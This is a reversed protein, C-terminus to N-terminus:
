LFLDDMTLIAVFTSSHVGKTLGYTTILTPWLAQKAETEKRFAEIRNRLKGEEEKDLTYEAESYKIEFINIINDARELIMDIQAKPTTKRSRWSYCKTAINDLHMVQKIQSIHNMCLREFSLGLWTNVEPTGIHNSWYGTEAEAKPVFTLYFISYFDTLQYIASNRKIEKERVVYKRIIDCNVLDELKKSLSGSSEKGLVKGLENRTLGARAKSLATVIATYSDPSKFLTGYLRRYERRMEEDESFFLRDINMPFSKERHLLSLYYPIGGLAMYAQMVSLRDWLFGRSELYLETERLTFPRLHIEHTIRDHLGGKDDVIHRIMWSTASGCVILTLNDQLSAWSNWFYGLARVFGSRQTDMSPLEDLFVICRKKLVVKKKLFAKLIRFAEMWNKPKDILEGSYEQMADIFAEMQEKQTGNLVGTMSFALKGAFLQNVLFTKGVRRRGYIAVFEPRGSASYEKLLKIEQERGVLKDM